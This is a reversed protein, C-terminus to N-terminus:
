GRPQIGSNDFAPFVIRAPNGLVLARQPVAKIVRSGPGITAGSGIAVLGLIKTHAGIWVGNGITPGSPETRSGIRTGQAISCNEGLRCNAIEIGGFHLISCGAGIQASQFLQIGYCTRIGAVAVLYFLAAPPLAPWWWPRWLAALCIRGFRYVLLAQLGPYRLVASLARRASLANGGLYREFDARIVHRLPLM